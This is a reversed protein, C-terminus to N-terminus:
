GKTSGEPAAAPTPGGSTGETTELDIQRIDMLPFDGGDTALLRQGLGLSLGEAAEAWDTKRALRILDDDSQESGPYRTPILGVAEGGNVWTFHAPMWVVDRLDAPADIAIRRINEIPIWFYRGEVIAELMPGLRPDADALWQFPQGDITGATAPAADLAGDRLRAAAAHSGQATLRLAELLAGVWQPPNGFVLPSRKGAFVEARLVECQLAERYVQAMALALPDLKAATNLQDLARGWQGHVALM